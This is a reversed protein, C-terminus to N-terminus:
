SKFSTTSVQRARSGLPGRCYADRRAQHDNLTARDHTGALTLATSVRLRRGDVDTMSSDLQQLPLLSAFQWILRRRRRSQRNLDTGDNLRLGRLM